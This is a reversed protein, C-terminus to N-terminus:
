PDRITGPPFPSERSEDQSPPLGLANEARRIGLTFPEPIRIAASIPPVKVSMARTVSRPATAVHFVSEVGSAYESATMSPILANIRETDRGISATASTRWPQVTAM